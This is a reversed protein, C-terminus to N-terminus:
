TIEVGFVKEVDRDSGSATVRRRRFVENLEEYGSM